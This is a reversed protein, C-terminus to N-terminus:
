EGDHENEKTMLKLAQEAEEKTLFVTKGFEKLHRVIWELSVSNNVHIYYEKHSDCELCECGQCSYEDFEQDNETCKTYRSCILYLTSEKPCPLWLLLGQEEADEYAGMKDYVQRISVTSDASTYNGTKTKRTLREM